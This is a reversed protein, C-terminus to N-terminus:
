RTADIEISTVGRVEHSPPDKPKDWMRFVYQNHRTLKFLGKLAERPLPTTTGSAVLRVSQVERGAPIALGIVDGLSWGRERPTAGSKSLGRLQPSVDTAVGDVVVSLPPLAVVHTRVSVETVGILSQLPQKAIAALDSPLDPAIPRFVGLAPQGQELYLRVTAGPYATSPHALEIMRDDSTAGIVEVWTDPPTGVLTDLAVPGTVQVPRPAADDLTVAV